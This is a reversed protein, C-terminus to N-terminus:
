FVVSKIYPNMVFGNLFCCFTESYGFFLLFIQFRKNDTCVFSYLNYFYVNYIHPASFSRMNEYRSYFVLSIMFRVAYNLLLSLFTLFLHQCIPLSKIIYDLVGCYPSACLVKFILCRIFFFGKFIIQTLVKLYLLLERSFRSYFIDTLCWSRNLELSPKFM